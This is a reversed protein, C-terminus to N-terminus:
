SWLAYTIYEDICMCICVVKYMTKHAWVCFVASIEVPGYCWFCFTKLMFDVEEYFHKYLLPVSIKTYRSQTQTDNYVCKQQKKSDLITRTNFSINNFKNKLKRMM